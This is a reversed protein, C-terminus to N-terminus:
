ADLVTDSEFFSLFSVPGSEVFLEVTEHIEAFVLKEFTVFELGVLVDAVEWEEHTFTVPKTAFFEFWIVSKAIYNFVTWKWDAEDAKSFSENSHDAFVM